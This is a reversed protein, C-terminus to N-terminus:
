QVLEVNRIDPFKDKIAAQVGMGIPPPGEFRVKCVGQEVELVEVKAGYSAIAPRLMDLHADVSAVGASLNVADLQHVGKLKEGFAGQLAREIGMKMTGASSPCTGCAGQLRLFVVGEDVSAVEVNGGDAILYPRVEDLAANVTEPTLDPAEGAQAEGISRHVSARAFPTAVPYQNTDEVPNGGDAITEATQGDIVSSWDDGEVAKILNLRRTRVDPSEGAVDDALNEGMAKRMKLAREELAGADAESLGARPPGEWESRDIGNGPPTTGAERLWNGAQEELHQRSMLAQNVVVLARIFACREEGVRGLQGKVALIINRGYGVYQLNRSTDYLAYVGLPKEGERAELYQAVPVLTTGDDEGERSQYQRDAGDHVEAGGDGYLFGHLGKHGEPVTGDTMVSGAGSPLTAAEAKGSQCKQLRSYPSLRGQRSAYIRNQTERCSIRGSTPVFVQSQFCTHSM